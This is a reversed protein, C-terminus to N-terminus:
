MALQYGLTAANLEAESTSLATVSQRGSRWMIIAGAWRIIVGSQNRLTAGSFAADSYVELLDLSCQGPEGEPGSEPGTPSGPAHFDLSTSSKM